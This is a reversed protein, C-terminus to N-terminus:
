FQWCFSAKGHWGWAISVRCGYTFFDFCRPLGASPTPHDVWQLSRICTLAGNEATLHPSPATPAQLLTLESQWWDTDDAFDSSSLKQEADEEEEEEADDGDDQFQSLHTSSTVVSTCLRTSRAKHLLQPQNHRSPGLFCTFCLTPDVWAFFCALGLLITPTNSPNNRRTMKTEKKNAKINIVVAKGSALYVQLSALLMAPLLVWTGRKTIM